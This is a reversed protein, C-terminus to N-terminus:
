KKRGKILLKSLDKLIEKLDLSYAKAVVGIELQEIEHAAMPCSLCPLNHKALIEEGGEIDLIEKITITDKINKAMNKISTYDM